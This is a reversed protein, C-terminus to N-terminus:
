PLRSPNAKPAKLSRDLPPHPWQQLKLRLGSCSRVWRWSYCRRHVPLASSLNAGSANCIVPDDSLFWRHLCGLRNSHKMVLFRVEAKWEIDWDTVIVTSIFLKLCFNTRRSVCMGHRALFKSSLLPQQQHPESFVFGHFSCRATLSSHFRSPFSSCYTLRDLFGTSISSRLQYIFFSSRM